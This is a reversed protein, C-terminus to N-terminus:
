IFLEITTADRRGPVHSLDCRATRRARTMLAAVASVPPFWSTAPDM